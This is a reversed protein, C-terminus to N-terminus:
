SGSPFVGVSSRGTPRSTRGFESCRSPVARTLVSDPSSRTSSSPQAASETLARVERLFEVPQLEPRRSQVPEVLVAALESGRAKLIELSEPSGYDLVIVNEVMNPAIGPAIPVSRLQGDVTTPRVLVEDFVGHYAGAFMAITDRGSITRYNIM